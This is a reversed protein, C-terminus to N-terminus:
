NTSFYKNIINKMIFDKEKQDLESKSEKSRLIHLIADIDDLAGESSEFDQELVKPHVPMARKIYM